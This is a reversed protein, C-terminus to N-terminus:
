DKQGNKLFVAEKADAKGHAVWYNFDQKRKSKNIIEDWPVNKHTARTDTDCWFEFNKDNAEAYFWLDEGFIFSDHTRFPVQNLVERKIMLCGIGVAYARLLQPSGKDQFLFDQILSHRKGLKGKRKKDVIRKYENIEDFSFYHLGKGTEIFGDKLICPVQNPEHYVHVYFGVCDKKYLILREIADKPVFIDQDLFFIYDYENELFYKRIKERVHALMQLPHYKEMDWIHRQAIIKKGKVSANSIKNFYDEKESNDILLVDFEPYNLGNLHEIWEDFLHAHRDSVPAAVLVKPLNNVM